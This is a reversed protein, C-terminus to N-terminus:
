YTFNALVEDINSEEEEANPPPSVKPGAKIDDTPWMQEKTIIYNEPEDDDDDLKMYDINYEKAKGLASYSKIINDKYNDPRVYQKGSIRWAKFGLLEDINHLRNVRYHSVYKGKQKKQHANIAVSYQSMISNIYALQTKLTTPDKSRKDINFLIKTGKVDNFIETGTLKELKTKMTDPDIITENDYINIDLTTIIDSVIKAKRISIKKNNDTEIDQSPMNKIPNAIIAYNILKEKTVSSRLKQVQEDDASNLTTIGLDDCFMYRAIEIKQQATAISQQQKSLLEEFQERTIDYADIMMQIMTISNDNIVDKTEELDIITHGKKECLQYLCTFFSKDNNMAEMKNYIFVRNYETSETKYFVKNNHVHRVVECDLQIDKYLSKEVEYYTLLEVDDTVKLKENLVYIDNSKFNRVRSCMQLFASACTSKPCLITYLKDFHNKISFDVGSEVMPSYIVVDKDQWCEINKLELAKDDDGNSIYMSVNLEPFHEKIYDNYYICQQATLSAIVIKEGAQLSDHILQTYATKNKKIYFTKQNLKINNIIKLNNGYNSLFSYAREGMDGDLAIIRKSESLIHTLFKFKTKSESKFTSSSIHRLISECEDLIVLDYQPIQYGHEKDHIMTKQISEFQVIIKPAKPINECDRYDQFLFDKMNKKFDDALSKRYSLYLVRKTKTPYQTMISKLIDTKGTGYPSKISLTKYTKFKMFKNITDTVPTSIEMDKNNLDLLYPQNIETTLNKSM